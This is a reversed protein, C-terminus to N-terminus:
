RGRHCSLLRNRCRNTRQSEKAMVQRHSQSDWAAHWNSGVGRRFEKRRIRDGDIIHSGRKSSVATSNVSLLSRRNPHITFLSGLGSGAM